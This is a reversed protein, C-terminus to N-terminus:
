KPRMMITFHSAFIRPTYFCTLNMSIKAEKHDNVDFILGDDCGTFEIVYIDTAM